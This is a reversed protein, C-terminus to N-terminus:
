ICCPDDQDDKRCGCQDRLDQGPQCSLRQPLQGVPHIWKSYCHKWWHQQRRWWNWVRWRRHPEQDLSPIRAGQRLHGPHHARVWFWLECSWDSRVQRERRYHPSRRQRRPLHRDGRGLRVVQQHLHDHRPLQQVEPQDPEVGQCREGETHVATTAPTSKWPCIWHHRGVRLHDIGLQQLGQDRQNAPLSSTPLSRSIKPCSLFLSTMTTTAMTPTTSWGRPLFGSAAKTPSGTARTTSGSQGM